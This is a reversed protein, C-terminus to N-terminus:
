VWDELAMSVIIRVESPLPAIVCSKGGLTLPNFCGTGLRDTFVSAASKTYANGVGTFSDSSLLMPARAVQSTYTRSSSSSTWLEVPSVDLDVVSDSVSKGIDSYAGSYYPLVLGYQTATTIAGDAARLTTIKNNSSWVKHSYTSWQAGLAFFNGTAPTAISGLGRLSSMAGVALAFDIGNSNGPPTTLYSSANAFWFLATQENAIAVWYRQGPLGMRSTNATMASVDSISVTGSRANVATTADVMADAIFLTCDFYDPSTGDDQVLGLVGSEAANTFQAHGLTSWEDYVVSWGAAPMSGYGDVLVAKAVNYFSDSDVSANPAGVDDWRYIRPEAAM